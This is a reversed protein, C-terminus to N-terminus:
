NLDGLILLSLSPLSPLDRDNTLFFSAGAPTAAALQIADPTRLNHLARLRAAEEALTVDVPLVTFARSGLLIERYQRALDQRASRIPHALVELLTVCSTVIQFDGQEAAAFFPQLKPAYVPHDEIVYILPATDLGVV